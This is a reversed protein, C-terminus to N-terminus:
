TLGGTFGKDLNSIQFGELIGNHVVKTTFHTPFIVLCVMEVGELVRGLSDVRLEGSIDGFGFGGGTFGEDFKSIQFGELIGNYVM